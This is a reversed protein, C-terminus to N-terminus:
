GRLATPPGTEPASLPPPVLGVAEGASCVSLGPTEDVRRLARDCAGRAAEEWIPGAVPLSVSHTMPHPPHCHPPSHSAQPAHADHRGGERVRARVPVACRGGLHHVTVGSGARPRRLGEEADDNGM